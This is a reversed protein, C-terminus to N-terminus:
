KVKLNLMLILLRIFFGRVQHCHNIRLKFDAFKSFRHAHHSGRERVKPLDLREVKRLQYPKRLKLLKALYFNTIRSCRVL